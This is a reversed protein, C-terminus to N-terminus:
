KDFRISNYFRATDIGMISFEFIMNGKRVFLMPEYYEPTATSSTTSASVYALAAPLGDITTKKVLAWPASGNATDNKAVFDEVSQTTTSIILLDVSKNNPDGMEEKNNGFVSAVLGWDVVHDEEEFQLPMYDRIEMPYSFTFGYKDNHYEVWKDKNANNFVLAFVAIAITAVAVFVYILNKINIKKMKNLFYPCSESVM